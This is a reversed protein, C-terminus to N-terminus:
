CTGSPQYVPPSLNEVRRASASFLLEHVRRVAEDARTEDVLFSINGESAGQGIMRVEMDSIANLVQGAIEPRRRIKEGILCVLAKHGEWRVNALSSLERAVAPLDEAASMVLSLSRHSASLLDLSYQHREFIDFVQRLFEPRLPRAPEIDFVAVGPKATIAKVRGNESTHATIETGGSESNRSNLVWVPINHQMAPAITAPHLVRAGFHALEAAENFSLSTLRHADPCLNPDTSMVGDVDTWIEIRRANLAVGIAAASCDSGGRGLTTPVGALTSGVFGGIVPVQGTHLLPLLKGRVRETTEAWLPSAHSHVADTILIEKSDVWVVHFGARLLAAHLIKSSLFEGVGLFRDQVQPQLVGAAAIEGTLAHLMQFAPDLEAWLSEYQQKEVLEGAVSQHRERMGRLSERAADAHGDASAKAAALLRDTVGGLASVIVVPPHRLRRKVLQSVRRIAAADEVSTGGFKMVVCEGRRATAEPNSKVGDKM